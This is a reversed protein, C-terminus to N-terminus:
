DPNGSADSPVDLRYGFGKVNIVWCPKHPNKEIKKRLLLIYQKIESNEARSAEPWLRAIIEEHSVVRGPDEALLKLLEYEKPSLHCEKNSISVSKLQDDIKIPGAILINKDPPIKKSSYHQKLPYLETTKDELPNSAGQDSITISM